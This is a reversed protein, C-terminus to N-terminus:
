DKINSFFEDAASIALWMWYPEVFKKLPVGMRDGIERTASDYVILKVTIDDFAELVFEDYLIQNFKPDTNDPHIELTRFYHGGIVIELAM